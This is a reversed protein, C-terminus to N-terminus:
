LSLFLSSGLSFSTWCYAWLLIWSLAFGWPRVSSSLYLAWLFPDIMVAKQFVWGAASLTLHLYRYWVLPCFSSVETTSNPFLQFFSLLLAARYSSWYDWNVQVGSIEWDNSWCDHLMYWSIHPGWCMYLLPSSGPRPWTLSSVSFGWSFLPGLSHPPRTSYPNPTHTHLCGWPSPSQSPLPTPHPFILPHGLLPIFDSTYYFILYFKFFLCVYFAWFFLYFDVSEAKRTSLNCTHMMILDLKCPRHTDFESWWAQTTLM